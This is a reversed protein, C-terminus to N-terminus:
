YLMITKNLVYQLAYKLIYLQTYLILSHAIQTSDECHATVVADL